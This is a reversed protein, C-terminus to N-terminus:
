GGDEVTKEGTDFCKDENGERRGFWCSQPLSPDNKRIGGYVRYVRNVRDDRNVRAGRSGLLPLHPHHIVRGVSAENFGFVM